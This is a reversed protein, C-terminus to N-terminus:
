LNIEIYPDFIVLQNIMYSFMADKESLEMSDAKERDMQYIIEVEYDSNKKLIEKTLKIISAKDFPEVYVFITKYDNSVIKEHIIEYKLDETKEAQDVEKNQPKDAAGDEPDIPSKEPQKDEINLNNNTNAAIEKEPKEISPYIKLGLIILIVGFVLISVSHVKKKLYIYKLSIILLLIGSYFIILYLKYTIIGILIIFILSTLEVRM